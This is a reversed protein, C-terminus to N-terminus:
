RRSSTASARIHDMVQAYIRKATSPYDEVTLTETDLPIVLSKSHRAKALAGVDRKIARNLKALYREGISQEAPRGRKRIRELQARTTCSLYIIAAPPSFSKALHRHISRLIPLEKKHRPSIAAYSLDQLFAFDCVAGSPSVSADRLCDAHFLLFSVNKSFEYVEPNEYFEKWFPVEEFKEPVPKIKGVTAIADALSTKGTAIGGCIEIRFMVLSM